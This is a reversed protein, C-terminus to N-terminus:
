KMDDFYILRNSTIIESADVIKSINNLPIGM